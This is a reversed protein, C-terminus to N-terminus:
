SHDDKLKDCLWQFSSECYAYDSSGRDCSRFRSRPACRGPITRTTLTDGALQRVKQRNKGSTTSALTDGALKAASKVQQAFIGGLEAKRSRM